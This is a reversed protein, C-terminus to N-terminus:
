KPLEPVPMWHTIHNEDVDWILLDDSIIKNDRKYSGKFCSIGGGFYFLCRQNYKPTEDKIKIWAM